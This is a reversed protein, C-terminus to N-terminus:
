QRDYHQPPGPKYGPNGHYRPDWAQGASHQDVTPPSSEMRPPATEYSPRPAAYIPKTVSGPQGYNHEAGYGEADVEGSALAVSIYVILLLIRYM